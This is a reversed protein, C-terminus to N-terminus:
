AKQIAFQYMSAFIGPNKCEFRHWRDLDIMAPDEPNEAAYARLVRADLQFGLFQLREAALFAAIEPLTHQYEQVHFLLDRCDSTSYFDGASIVTKGPAGDPLAFIEQRYRRIDEAGAGCGRAAIAARAANIDQRATRSYLGLMM